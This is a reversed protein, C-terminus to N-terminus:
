GLVIDCEEYEVIDIGHFRKFASQYDITGDHSFWPEQGYLDRIKTRMSEADEPGSLIIYTDIWSLFTPTFEPYQQSVQNAKDILRKLISSNFPPIISKMEQAFVDYPIAELYRVILPEHEISLGFEFFKKAVENYNLIGVSERKKPTDFLKSVYLLMKADSILTRIQNSLLESNKVSPVDAHRFFDLILAHKFDYSKHEWSIDSNFLIDLLSDWGQPTFQSKCASIISHNDENPKIDSDYMVTWLHAYKEYPNMRALANLVGLFLPEKNFFAKNSLSYRLVKDFSINSINDVNFWLSLNIKEREFIEEVKDIDIHRRLLSKQKPNLFPKNLFYSILYSNDWTKQDWYQEWDPNTFFRYDYYFNYPPKQKKSFVNLPIKKLLSLINMCWSLM